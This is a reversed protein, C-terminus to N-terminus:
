PKEDNNKNQAGAGAFRRRKEAFEILRREVRRNITKEPFAGEADRGGAPVDTLIEIGQDVTEVPYIQFRGAEAAEVVDRRLMLHKVNSAPILVGQYGTLGRAECVDFFGEIKENVGGIAQIEGHQNVSGTVALSQKIPARALASLLAYLEASSASDGEVGGYSQEFVLSAALALPHDSAYRAGLFSSLILVGKSHLPGGLDVEREIDLVKGAGMRLRATIRSPRGFAYGGVQIVSLGNIQGVKEGDTDILITDRLIEERMREEIRNSRRIKGDIARQVEGVGIVEKGTQAAWYDAERVLDATSRIRMSLKETDAAARASQEILRAVASRDLARLEERRSLTAILRAFLQDNVESRETQDEFDAAVKFLNSFEPDHAQLLYYLMREGILVVKVGLPIPEPELSVTSVLSFAQGLSEIRIQNATLAQKLGGWAFPQALLKRADLVLFGGNARHLAGSKILSFDTVLAGMEARHEIRGVLNQYTPHDEFVVPAGNSDNHDVVVNVTYRRVAPSDAARRGTLSPPGQDGPGLFLEVNEVIDAQMSRLHAAVKDFDEYAAIVDDILSGVAFMTTERDLTRVRERVERVLKPVGQMASRLEKELGQIIEQVRQREDEPLRQFDDPNIVEGERVPAFAFGVPTRVLAIGQEQARSQIEGLMRGQYEKFEEEVAQRRTRYDESEFAAPIATHLEELLKAVDERLKGARGAPLELANPKNPDEFNNVYCWDPPAPAQSGKKELFDRVLTHRGTGPAGLVFLNYGDRGLGIGFQIAEVAREQGLIGTLDELEATTEFSFARVDCARYLAESP